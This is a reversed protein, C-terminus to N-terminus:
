LSWSLSWLTRTSDYFTDELTTLFGTLKTANLILLLKSNFFIHSYPNYVFSHCFVLYLKYNFLLKDKRRGAREQFFCKVPKVPFFIGSPTLL